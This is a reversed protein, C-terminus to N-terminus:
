CPGLTSSTSLIMRSCRARPTCECKVWSKSLCPLDLLAGGLQGEQMETQVSARPQEDAARHGGWFVWTLGGVTFPLWSPGPGGGKLSRCIFHKLLCIKKEPAKALVDTLVVILHFHIKHFAEIHIPAETKGVGSIVQPVEWIYEKFIMFVKSSNIYFLYIWQVYQKCISYIHNQPTTSSQLLSVSSFCIVLLRGFPHFCM